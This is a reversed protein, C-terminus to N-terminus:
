KTVLNMRGKKLAISVAGGLSGQIITMWVPQKLEKYLKKIIRPKVAQTRGKSLKNTEWLPISWM